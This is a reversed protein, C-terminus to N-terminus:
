EIKVNYHAQHQVLQQQGLDLVIGHQVVEKLMHKADVLRQAVHTIHKVDVDVQEVHITDVPQHM